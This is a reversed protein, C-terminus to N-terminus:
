RILFVLNVAAKTPGIYSIRQPKDGVRAGNKEREFRDFELYAAGAGVSFELGFWGALMLQYGYSVGAGYLYGQNRYERHFLIQGGLVPIEHGGINFQAGVLHLGVSHGRYRERFWYRFEPQAAWHVLKDNNGATGARNWPNYGAFASVTIRKGLGAEIGINPTLTAWYALNTKLALVPKRLNRSATHGDGVSRKRRGGMHNPEIGEERLRSPDPKREFEDRYQEGPEPVGETPAWDQLPFSQPEEPWDAPQYLPPEYQEYIPLQEVVAVYSPEYDDQAKKGATQATCPGTPGKGVLAAEQSKVHVVMIYGNSVSYTYGTDRLLMKLMDELPVAKDPVTVKRSVDIGSNDVAFIYGTQCEIEAFAKELTIGPASLRVKGDYQLGAFALAPVLLCAAIIIVIRKM